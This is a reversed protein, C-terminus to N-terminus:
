LSLHNYNCTKVSRGQHLSLKLICTYPSYPSNNTKNICSVIIILNHGCGFKIKTRKTTYDSVTKHQTTKLKYWANTCKRIAM